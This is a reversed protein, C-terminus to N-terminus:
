KGALSEKATKALVAFIEPRTAGIHALVKRNLEIQANSLGAIFQSYSLENLRAAASVRTIWLRRFDRKKAKRDRYAYAMAKEVRQTAQRITNKSRGRFGKAKALVRNRRRRAKVGTKVRM